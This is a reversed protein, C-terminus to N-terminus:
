PAVTMTGCRIAQGTYEADNSALVWSLEGGPLKDDDVLLVESVARDDGVDLNGIVLEDYALWVRGPNDSAALEACIRNGMSEPTTEQAGWLRVLYLNDYGIRLEPIDDARVWLAITGFPPWADGPEARFAQITAVSGSTAAPEDPFNNPVYDLTGSGVLRCGAALLATAVLLVVPPRTLRRM